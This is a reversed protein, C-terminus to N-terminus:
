RPGTESNLVHHITSLLLEATFPKMLYASVDEKRIADLHNDSMWGSSAIIRVGPDIKKLAKITTPGDLVPMMMDTLVLSIEKGQKTFIVIAEAGDGATLVRYGHSELTAQTVQRIAAEDDVLLILEGSSIPSQGIEEEGYSRGSSGIAPLYIKFTSGKGEESYVHILGGHSRVIGLVTSLGLGTGKSADKTTYFPEFIREKVAPPMGQGTDSITIVVYPGPRADIHLRAYLEDLVINECVIHLIGGKPMADRANVIINMLVQHLQTSDGLVHSLPDSIEIKPVISKPFTEQIIKQVEGILPAMSLSVRQGEIGRAFSLVQKVLDSGRRASVAIMEVMKKMEGDSFHKHLIQACLLIPSLVNNLDHAIGGALTGISELRQARLFQAELLKRETIDQQVFVLLVRKDIQLSRVRAHTLFPTQNMRVYRIEGAWVHQNKLTSLIEDFLKSRAEPEGETLAFFTEGALGGLPFGFMADCAPNTFTIRGDVETVMVGEAMNELILAQRRLSEEAFKRSRRVQADRVEREVAPVLRTLNGKMIYDHAGAKMATVAIDEGITGSVIIFPIDLGSEKLTRLAGEGSFRPLNYDSIIIDWTSEEIAQSMASETEVRKWLPHYGGTLLSRVVLEADDDSDEVILVRLEGPNLVIEENM